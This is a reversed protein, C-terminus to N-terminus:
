TISKYSLDPELCFIEIQGGSTKQFLIRAEIVRSDNFVLLSPKKLYNALEAYLGDQIKGSKWVLLKSSDRQPLPYRAIKDDPLDYGFESLSLDNAIPTYKLM